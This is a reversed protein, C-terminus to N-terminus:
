TSPVAKVLQHLLQSKDPQRIRRSPPLKGAMLVEGVQCPGEVAQRKWEGMMTHHISHKAALQAATLEGWLAELAVKAKFEALYGRRKGMM